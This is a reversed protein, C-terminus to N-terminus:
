EAKAASDDAAQDATKEPTIKAPEADAQQAQPKGQLLNFFFSAEEAAHKEAMEQYENLKGMLDNLTFESSPMNPMDPMEDPLDDSFSDELDALQPYKKSLEKLQDEIAEKQADKLQDWYAEMDKKFEKWQKKSESKDKSWGMLPALALMTKIMKKAKKKEGM